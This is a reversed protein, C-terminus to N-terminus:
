APFRALEWLVFAVVIAIGATMRVINLTRRHRASRQIAAFPVSRDLSTFFRPGHFLTGADLFGFRDPHLAVAAEALRPTRRTGAGILARPVTALPRRSPDILRADPVAGWGWIRGWLEHDPAPELGGVEHWPWRRGGADPLILELGEDDIRAEPQPWKVM